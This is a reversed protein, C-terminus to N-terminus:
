KGSEKNPLTVGTRALGHLGSLVLTGDAAQAVGSLAAAKQGASIAFTRGSDTSRLVRGAEDTLVLSGDGLLTGATLTIPAMALRSWTNGGDGSRFANGRLGFVILEVPSIALAGFFTSNGAGKMPSFTKGQDQSRYLAGQEGAVFLSSGATSIAYLHRGKPNDLRGAVSEWHQGGDQTMFALGYAGVIMGVQENFFHLDFFPKDPGESVLRVADAVRRQDPHPEAKAARLELAAAMNGDLQVRWTRGGDATALVVGGHGIAWGHLAGVFRVNTLTVSVPTAAQRWNQGNDDSYLIVGREGVSVLRTGARTLALQALNIAHVSM